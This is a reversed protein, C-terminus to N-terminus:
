NRKGTMRARFSFRKEVRFVLTFTFGGTGKWRSKGELQAVQINILTLGFTSKGQAKKINFGPGNDKYLLMISGDEQLNIKVVLNPEKTKQFAYKCSNTLLENLILGLSNVKDPPLRIIDINIDRNLNLIGFSVIIQNILENAFQQLEVEEIGQEYLQKHILGIANVRYQSAEIIDRMTDEQLRNAQLSLLGSIIQLNNKLRHNQEKLLLSNKNSIRKNDQYLRFYMIVFIVALVLIGSIILLLWKQYRLISEKAHLEEEIIAREFRHTLQSLALDRDALLEKEKILSSKM